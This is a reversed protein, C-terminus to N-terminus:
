NESPRRASDIVFYSNQVKTSEMQLGLQERLAVALVPGADDDWSLTFDYLGTLGTRDVGAGHGGFTSLFRILDAMSYRQMRIHAPQGPQPKGGPGMFIETDQSTTERLKSGGKDVTLAFGRQEVDERHFKMQFRDIIMNQLMTLLQRETVKPSEAKGVVDFREAGMAIWEPGSKILQMGPIAWAISVLHSLRANSIVCRGLPPPEEGPTYVSDVGRCGGTVGGAEPISRKVSAVEFSLAAPQQAHAAAMVWWALGVVVRRIAGSV